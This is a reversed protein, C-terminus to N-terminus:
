YETASKLFASDGWANPCVYLSGLSKTLTNSLMNRTDILKNEELLGMCNIETIESRDTQPLQAVHATRRAASPSPAGESLGASFM